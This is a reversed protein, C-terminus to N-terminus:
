KAAAENGVIVTVLSDLDVHKRFAQRVDEVGVAEIKASFDALYSLPLQYYGIMSLYGLVDRNSDIRLPFGSIINRKSLELEAESPGETQYKNLVDLM